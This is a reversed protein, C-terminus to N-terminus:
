GGFPKEADLRKKAEKAITLDFLQERPVKKEVFTFYDAWYDQMAMISEFQPIGDESTYSWFPAIAKILEPKNLFTNKALINLIDPHKDPATAAADFEKVGQLYAIAFRM